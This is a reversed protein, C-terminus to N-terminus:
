GIPEHRWIGRPSDSLHVIGLRLALRALGASPDEGAAFANAVDYVVKVDDYGERALFAEIAEADALLGQPHNELVLRVNNRLGHEYITVFARRVDDM